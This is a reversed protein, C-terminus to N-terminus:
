ARKSDDASRSDAAQKRKWRRAAEVRGIVTLLALILLGILRWTWGGTFGMVAVWVTVAAAASILIADFIM